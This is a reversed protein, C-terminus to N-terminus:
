RSGFNANAYHNAMKISTRLASIKHYVENLENEPQSLFVIGCGAQYQLVNKYSVFSRICIAHNIHGNFGIFGVTGGYIGRPNKEIESIIEMARYKPAGSLTGAPFSDLLVKIGDDDSKLQGQIKSVLHIVHSYVEVMKYKEVHVKKTSKSLDNRALDVLMNHEANEKPDILLKQSLEELKEDDREYTGAIPFSYAKRKKIRLQAEPSSGMLRFNGFDFYFLYPSPNISRLSRYVQFDDGMYEQYFQRSLVLQFVDGRKCHKKVKHITELFEEDTFNSTEEGKIHFSFEYKRKQELFQLYLKANSKENEKLHEIIYIQNHFHDFLIVNKFFYYQVLPFREEIQWDIKEILPIADYAIYGFLGSLIFDDNELLEVDFLDMFEKLIIDLTQEKTNKQIISKGIQILYQNKYVKLNAQADFVIYSFSNEKSKYDSSELLFTIPYMSRIKQFGELPNLLDGLLQTM